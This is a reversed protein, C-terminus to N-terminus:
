IEKFIASEAADGRGNVYRKYSDKDLMYQRHDREIVATREDCSYIFCHNGAYVEYVTEPKELNRSCSYRKRIDGSLITEFQKSFYGGLNYYDNELSRCATNALRCGAAQLVAHWCSQIVERSIKNVILHVHLGGNESNRHFVRIYKLESGARRYAKRLKRLYKRVDQEIQADTRPQEGPVTAYKLVIHLDNYDFNTEIMWRLKERAREINCRTKEANTQQMRKGRQDSGQGPEDYTRYVPYDKLEVTHKTRITKKKRKPKHKHKSM